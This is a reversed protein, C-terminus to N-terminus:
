SLVHYYGGEVITAITSWHLIEFTISLVVLRRKILKYLTQSASQSDSDVQQSAQRSTNHKGEELSRMVVITSDSIM